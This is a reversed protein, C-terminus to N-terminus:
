SAKINEKQRRAQVARLRAEWEVPDCQQCSSDADHGHHLQFLKELLKLTQQQHFNSSEASFAVAYDKIFMMLSPFDPLLVEHGYGGLPTVSALFTDGNSSEYIQIEGGVEFGFTAKVPGYGIKRLYEEYDDIDSFEPLSHGDEWLGRNFTFKM